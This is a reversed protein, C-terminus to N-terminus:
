QVNAIAEAILHSPLETAELRRKKGVKSRAGPRLTAPCRQALETEGVVIEPDGRGRQPM